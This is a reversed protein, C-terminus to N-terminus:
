PMRDSIKLSISQDNKEMRVAINGTDVWKEGILEELKLFGYRQVEAIGEGDIWRCARWLPLYLKYVKDTELKGYVQGAYITAAIVFTPLALMNRKGLPDNEVWFTQQCYDNLMGEHIIRKYADHERLNTHPDDDKDRLKMEDPLVVFTQQYPLFYGSQHLQKLTDDLYKAMALDPNLLIQHVMTAESSRDLICLQNSTAWHTILWEQIKRRGQTFLAFDLLPQRPLTRAMVVSRYSEPEDSLFWKFTFRNNIPFRTTPERFFNIHWNALFGLQEDRLPNVGWRLDSRYYAATLLESLGDVISSKGCGNTGGIVVVHVQKPSKAETERRQNEEILLQPLSRVCRESQAM